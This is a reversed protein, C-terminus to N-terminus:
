ISRAWRAFAKSYSMILVRIKFSFIRLDLIPCCLMLENLPMTLRLFTLLDYQETSVEMWYNSNLWSIKSRCPSKIILSTWPFLCKVASSTLFDLSFISSFNITSYGPVWILRKSFTLMHFIDMKSILFALLNSATSVSFSKVSYKSHWTKSNKLCCGSIGM